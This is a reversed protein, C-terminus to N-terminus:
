STRGRSAYAEPERGELLDRRSTLAEGMFDLFARVRGTQRLDRHNLLWLDVETGAIPPTLRRLRSDIDGMGCPLIAVGMGARVADFVGLLSDIRMAVASAPIHDEVWRASPLQTLTESALVWAYDSLERREEKEVVDRHGYVANAITSIRRGVLHADPAQTPRIAVDALRQTLSVFENSVVLDLVVEPHRRRFETLPPMVLMHMLTDATTVRITGRIAVDRGVLRRELAEVKEALRGAVRAVDTGASTPVYGSRLREFLRVGLRTEIAELRRLVTSHNIGLAKGAGLLSGAEVVARVLRLDNWELHANM